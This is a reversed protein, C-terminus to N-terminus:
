LGAEPSSPAHQNAKRWFFAEDGRIMSLHAIVDDTPVMCGAWTRHYYGVPHLCLVALCRMNEDGPRKSRPSLALTPRLRRLVYTLGSRPSSEFFAGTLEYHGWQRETLMARLTERARYEADLDWADSAGITMLWMTMRDMSRDPSLPMTLAYRKGRGNDVVYVTCNRARCFWENVVVEDVDDERIPPGGVIVDVEVASDATQGFQRYVDRLPHKPALVLPTDEGLMVPMGQWDDRYTSMRDFFRRVDAQTWESTDVM